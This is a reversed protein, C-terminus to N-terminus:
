KAITIGPAENRPLNAVTMQFLQYVVRFAERNWFSSTNEALSYRHGNLTVSLEGQTGGPADEVVELTHVPNESVDPSRPDRDVPYENEGAGDRGIFNLLSHFSRLRFRGRIPFEGGPHGARIDIDIDDHGGSRAWENLLHRETEDLTAPDYNTLIVRGTLQETLQYDQGSRSLLASYTSTEEPPHELWHQTVIDKPMSWRRHLVIPEVFLANRDQITSLHLVARRFVPYEAKILPRNRYTMEMAGEDLRLESAALRLLMDVDYGQRLLLVIRDAEFPTLFRQTFEGGEIPIISITPNEAVSGGFVPAIISGSSGTMAPTAGANFQFNFTAAINSIGTFHMPLRQRARAINLLLQRSLIDTATEDYAMVAQNLALPSICGSLLWSALGIVLPLKM